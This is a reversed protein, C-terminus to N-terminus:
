QTFVFVLRGCAVIKIHGQIFMYVRTEKHKQAYVQARNEWTVIETDTHRQKFMYVSQDKM